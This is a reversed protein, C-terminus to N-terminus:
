IGLPLHSPIDLELLFHPSEVLALRVKRNGYLRAEPFLFQHSSQSAPATPDNVVTVEDSQTGGQGDSYAQFGYADATLQRPNGSMANDYIATM